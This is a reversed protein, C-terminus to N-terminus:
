KMKDWNGDFIISDISKRSRQNGKPVVLHDPLNEENGLYGATVMIVPEFMEPINFHDIAKQVSFGGMNRLYIGLHSAQMTFNGMALGLDYAVNKREVNREPDIKQVLALMLFPASKVWEQNFPILCDFLKDWTENQDPTAYIFRWPQSNRSSAAWRAAEFLSEITEISLQKSDYARPSYRKEVIPQISIKNM